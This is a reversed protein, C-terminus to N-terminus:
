RRRGPARHRRQRSAWRALRLGAVTAVLCGVLTGGLYGVAAGARGDQLLVRADSTYTSFTTFGGLVGVGLFPRVYRSPPWVELVCVVLVGILLSGVVNEVVTSWPVGGPVAPVLLNVAHRLASGIAGGVAVM